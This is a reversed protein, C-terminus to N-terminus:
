LIDNEAKKKQKDYHRKDNCDCPELSQDHKSCTKAQCKGPKESVGGCEATCIYHM